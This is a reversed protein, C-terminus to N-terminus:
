LHKEEQGLTVREGVSHLEVWQLNRATGGPILLPFSPSLIFHKNEKHSLAALLDGNLVYLIFCFGFNDKGGVSAEM